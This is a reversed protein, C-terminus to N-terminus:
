LRARLIAAVEEDTLVLPNTKMSSGRCNAVVRAIDAPQMGYEGLRPLGMELTWKELVDVLADQGGTEDLKMDNALVKGVHAYRWM